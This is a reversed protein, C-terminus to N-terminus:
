QETAEPATNNDLLGQMYQLLEPVTM